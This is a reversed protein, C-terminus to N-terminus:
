PVGDSGAEVELYYRSLRSVTAEKSLNPTPSKSSCVGSARSSKKLFAVPLLLIFPMFSCMCAAIIVDVNNSHRYM